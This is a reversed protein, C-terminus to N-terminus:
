FLRLTLGTQLAIADARPLHDYGFAFTVAARGMWLDIGLRPGLYLGLGLQERVLIAAPSATRPPSVPASPGDVAVM